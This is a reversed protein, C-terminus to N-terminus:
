YIVNLYEDVSYFANEILYQKIENKFKKSNTVNKLSNPLKNFLKAGLVSPHKETKQLRHKIIEFESRNRTNYQHNDGLHPLLSEHKKIYLISHFIFLAPVTLLRKTKFIQKCSETFKLGFIYRLARKQIKFIENLNLKSSSGWLIIGYAIHSMLLAHYVNLAADKECIYVNYVWSILM